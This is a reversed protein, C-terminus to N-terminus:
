ELTKQKQGQQMGTRQVGDELGEFQNTGLDNHGLGDCPEAYGWSKSREKKLAVRMKKKWTGDRVKIM